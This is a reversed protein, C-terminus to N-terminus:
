HTAEYINLFLVHEVVKMNSSFLFKRKNSFTMLEEITVNDQFDCMAGQYDGNDLYLFNLLKRPKLCFKLIMVLNREYM